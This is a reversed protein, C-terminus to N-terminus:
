SNVTATSCFTAGGTTLFYGKCCSDASVAGTVLTDHM